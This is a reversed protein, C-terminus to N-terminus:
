KMRRKPKQTSNPNPLFQNPLMAVERAIKLAHENEIGLYHATSRLDKHGLVIRVVELDKCHAYLLAGKTRRLSHSSYGEPPLGIAAVWTKIRSRYHGSSIPEHHTNNLPTFLYDNSDKDAWVVWHQLTQRTYDSLELPVTQGTKRQKAVFIQLQMDILKLVLLDSCRLGTDVATSFLALDRWQRTKTLYQCIKLIQKRTLPRKAGVSRAKNWPPPSAASPM